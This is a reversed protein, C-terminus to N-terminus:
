FEYIHTMETANSKSDRCSLRETVDNAELHKKAFGTKSGHVAHKSIILLNLQFQTEWCFDDIVSNRPGLGLLVKNSVRM